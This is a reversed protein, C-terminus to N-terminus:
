IVEEKEKIEYGALDLLRIVDEFMSPYINQMRYHICQRSENLMLGIESEKHSKLDKVIRNAKSKYWTLTSKPM